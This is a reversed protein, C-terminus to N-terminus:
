TLKPLGNAGLELPVSDALHWVWGILKEGEPTKRAVREVFFQLFFTQRKGDPDAPEITVAYVRATEEKAANLITDRTGYYSIKARDGAQWITLLTPNSLFEHVGHHQEEEGALGKEWFNVVDARAVLATRQWYPETMQYALDPRGAKVNEFWVKVFADAQRNFDREFLYASWPGAVASALAFAMGAGAFTRGVIEGGSRGIAYFAGLATLIGLASFVLFGLNVLSLFGLFGFAFSVVALASIRRAGRTADFDDASRPSLTDRPSADFLSASSKELPTQKKIM